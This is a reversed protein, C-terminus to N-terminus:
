KKPAKTPERIMGRSRGYALLECAMPHGCGVAARISSLTGALNYAAVADPVRSEFYAAKRLEAALEIESVDVEPADAIRDVNNVYFLALKQRGGTIALARGSSGCAEAIEKATVTRIGYDCNPRATM